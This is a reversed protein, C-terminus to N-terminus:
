TIRRFSVVWVWPNLDLSGPGNISEWLSGYSQRPTTCVVAPDTYKRWGYGHPGAKEIGEAICDDESIDHLREVRVDTVELTIRSLGRPCHISNLQRRQWPWADAKTQAGDAPYYSLRDCGDNLRITEKVWLHDGPQGYPSTVEETAIRSTHRGFVARLVEPGNNAYLPRKLYTLFTADGHDIKVVRRTQTKSGDLLARVMPASFLIPIERM